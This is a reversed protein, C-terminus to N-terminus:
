SIYLMERYKPLAWYDDAVIGEIKDCLIRIEQNLPIIIKSLDDAQKEYDANGEIKILTQDLEEVKNQLSEITQYLDQITKELPSKLGAKKAATFSKVLLGHYRFGAPLIHSSVIERMTNTEIYANKVYRELRVCYRSYLEQETIIGYESLMKKSEPTILQKLAEPTKRLNLLGRKEAEKEWSESYSNGQFLINKTEKITERLVSLIAKQIDNDKQLEAKLKNIVFSVGSIFAANLITVPFATSASSGVARFEFKNGTFAFPSTRNRDMNDRAVEPLKSIGMRLVNKETDGNSKTGKEIEELIRELFNGIFVSIIAPPAENVGLRLDNGLSAVSARLLGAHTQVGKLVAMLILLFRLNQHPTKGPDLLNLGNYKEDSGSVMLSWNCHKGSGNVGKFPKEHFIAAYNHKEAVKKIVEMVLQNHDTGLNADVFLPAVEFQSPAVENHRTKVPVGLKYLEHEAECMFANVRSTISGFYHDELQQGKPPEKGIITCGCMLLDPRINYFAQDILFYEQEVGLTPIVKRIDKDGILHLLECTKDSLIDMTRLLSTKEDLADGHYSIFVSPICLTKGNLSEMIFIPSSPDWATYGRAEFTTRMGGSPFSSADPESQILQAGSFQEVPKLGDDFSLFSDHKEATSGTQPQFWHCFHTVDRDLAWEKIARAVVLAVEADLKFGKEIAAVVENYTNAPVKSEIQELGFTNCAFYESIKLPRDDEDKPHNFKRPVHSKADRIAKFRPNAASM